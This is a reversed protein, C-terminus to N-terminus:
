YPLNMMLSNASGCMGNVPGAWRGNCVVRRGSWKAITEAVTLSFQGAFELWTVSGVIVVM